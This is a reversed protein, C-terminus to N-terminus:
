ALRGSRKEWRATMDIISIHEEVTAREDMSV